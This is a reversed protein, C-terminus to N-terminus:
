GNEIAKRYVDAELKEMVESNYNLMKQRAFIGMRERSDPNDKLRNIGKAFGEPTPEVREWADDIFEPVKEFPPPSQVIPLGCAMAEMVPIAIGGYNIATAYAHADRYYEVLETNKLCSHWAIKESVGLERALNKMDGLSLGDGVLVLKGDIHQMASILVEQNKEPIFRGVNIITFPQSKDKSGPCFVRTDVKNYIVTVPSNSYRRAYHAAFEYVAIIHTARKLSPKELTARHLLSALYHCYRRNKLINHRNDRDRDGHVSIIAPIGAKMSSYTALYGDTLSSYARIADPKLKGIKEAIQRRRFYINHLNFGGIPHFTVKAKGLSPMIAQRQEESLERDFTFLHINDFYDQPNFYNRKLKPILPVIQQYFIALKTM